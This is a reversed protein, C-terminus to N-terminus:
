FPVCVRHSYSQLLQPAIDHTIRAAYLQVPPVYLIAPGSQPRAIYLHFSQYRRIHRIASEAVHKHVHHIPAWSTVDVLRRFICEATVGSKALDRKAVEEGAECRLGDTSHVDEFDM